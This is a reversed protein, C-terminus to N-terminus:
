RARLGARQRQPAGSSRSRTAATRGPRKRRCDPHDCGGLAQLSAGRSYPRPPSPSRCSRSRDSDDPQGTSARLVGEGAEVGTGKRRRSSRAGASQESPRVLSPPGARAPSGIPDKAGVAPRALKARTSTRSPNMTRSAPAAGAKGARVTESMGGSSQVRLLDACDGLDGPVAVSAVRPAVSARWAVRCGLISCRRRGARQGKRRNPTAVFRSAPM